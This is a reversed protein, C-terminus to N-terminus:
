LVLEAMTQLTDTTGSVLLTTAISEKWKELDDRIKEKPGILATDEILATPVAAAAEDKRGELYLEQIKRAEAEYGMRAFVDFHFNMSKAGMGGIYLAIHPRFVDAAREIDDDIVTTALAIVEFDGATHRAGPRAFGEALSPEFAKVANPSFFIPFWGEAIEAALAVNKPGEAGLIIPIDKRLPHVIPKLPKGLGTGGKFPLPYHPGDNTVPAERALVQRIIDVYERTRALPKEFSQGYWGEVVQPGSVGLGLVFRGGSLHDMTLAAMAMATPTRGSLQCISTGLRVRETQSGWWALPTLADSGYSEATWISDYGLREAEAILEVADAPPGSGWYGLQLGLKMDKM